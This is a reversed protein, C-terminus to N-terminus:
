VRGGDVVPKPALAVEPWMSGDVWVPRSSDSGRAANWMRKFNLPSEFGARPGLGSRNIGTHGRGHSRRTTSRM